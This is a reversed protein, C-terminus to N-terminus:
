AALRHEYYPRWRDDLIEYLSALDAGNPNLWADVNEPRLDWDGARSRRSGSVEASHVPALQRCHACLVGLRGAIGREWFPFPFFLPICEDDGAGKQSEDHPRPASYVRFHRVPEIRRFPIAWRRFTGHSIQPYVASLQHRDLRHTRTRVKDALTGAVSETSRIVFHSKM